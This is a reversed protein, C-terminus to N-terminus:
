STTIELATTGPYAIRVIYREETDQCAYDLARTAFDLMEDEDLPERRSGSEGAGESCFQENIDKAYIRIPLKFRDSCVHAIFIRTFIPKFQNYRDGTAVIHMDRLLSPKPIVGNRKVEAARNRFYEKYWPDM